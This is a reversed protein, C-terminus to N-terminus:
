SHGGCSCAGAPRDVFSLQVSLGARQGFWSHSTGGMTSAARQHHEPLSLREALATADALTAADDVLIFALSGSTLIDIVVKLRPDLHCTLEVLTRAAQDARARYDPREAVVHLTPATM